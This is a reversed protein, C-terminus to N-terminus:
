CQKIEPIRGKRQQNFRQLLVQQTEVTKLSRQDCKLPRRGDQLADYVFTAKSSTIQIAPFQSTIFPM